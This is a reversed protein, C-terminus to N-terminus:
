LYSTYKQLIWGTCKKMKWNETGGFIEVQAPVEARRAQFGNAARGFLVVPIESRSRASQPFSYEFM